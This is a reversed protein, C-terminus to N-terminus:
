NYKHEESKPKTSIDTSLSCITALSLGNMSTVESSNPYKCCRMQVEFYSQQMHSINFYYLHIRYTCTNYTWSTTHTHTHAWVWAETILAKTLGVSCSNRGTAPFCACDLNWMRSQSHKRGQERRTHSLFLLCSWRILLLIWNIWQLDASTYTNYCM